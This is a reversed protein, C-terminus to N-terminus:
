ARAAPPLRSAELLRGYMRDVDPPLPDTLDARQRRFREEFFAGGDAAAKPLDLGEAACAVASAYADADLDFSILSFRHIRHHDLLMANYHMWLDFAQPQPMSNRAALSRAVAVPHRFTGVLRLDGVAERWFPLMLVTRPDKFGWPEESATHRDLIRDREEIHARTWAIRAPPRDWSGGSAELVADSLRMIDANERNGKPNHPSWEYVPGLRLGIRELTGALCSTGSRHMGVIAVVACRRQEM